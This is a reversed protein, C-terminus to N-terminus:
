NWVRQTWFPWKQPRLCWWSPRWSLHGVWYKNQGSISSNKTKKNKVCVNPYEGVWSPWWRSSLQAKLKWWRNCGPSFSGVWVRWIFVLIVYLINRRVDNLRIDGSLWPPWKWISFKKMKWLVIKWPSMGENEHHLLVYWVGRPFNPGFWRSLLKGHSTPGPLCLLM